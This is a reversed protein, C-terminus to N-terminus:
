LVRKEYKSLFFATLATLQIKSMLIGYNVGFKFSIPIKILSKVLLIMFAIYLKNTKFIYLLNRTTYYDRNLNKINGFSSSKWRYNDDVIKDRYRVGLWTQADVFIKFDTNKIKLCFDLDEFGFFLKKTPLIGIKVVEANVIMTHGGPVVDVEVFKGKKLDANTLSRIRGSTENFSGGKGGMIGVSIHKSLLTEIGNFMQKFELNDRPPNDDDGWYIWKYGQEALLKLGINSAGAPGSNYGVKYYYINQLNYKKLINNTDESISNDIIYIIEPAFLQDQLKRITDILIEPREYTIIFAGFYKKGVNLIEKEM